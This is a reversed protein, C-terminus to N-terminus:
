HTHKTYLAWKQTPPATPLTGVETSITCHICHGSRYQNHLHQQQKTGRVRLDATTSALASTTTAAATATNTSTITIATLSTPPPPLIINKTIITILVLILPKKTYLKEKRERRM